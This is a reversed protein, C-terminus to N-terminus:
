LMIMPKKIANCNSRLYFWMPFCFFHWGCHFCICCFFYASVQQPFSKEKNSGMPRIVRRQLEKGVM